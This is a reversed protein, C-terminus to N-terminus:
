SCCSSDKNEKTPNDDDEKEALLTPIEKKNALKMKFHLAKECIAEFMENIGICKYASVMFYGIEENNIWNEVDTPTVKTSKKLDKKNGVLFMPPILDKDYTGIDIFETRWKYLAQLTRPESLDFVFICAHCGRYFMKSLSAFREQGATDWLQMKVSYQGIRVEKLQFGASVTAMTSQTFEDKTYRNIVCTKGVSSSGLLIVKVEHEEM